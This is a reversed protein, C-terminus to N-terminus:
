LDVNGFPLIRTPDGRFKSRYDIIAQTIANFDKVESVRLSALLQRLGNIYQVQEDDSFPDNNNGLQFLIQDDAMKMTDFHQYLCNARDACTGELLEQSCIARDVDIMNSYTLSRLGGPV